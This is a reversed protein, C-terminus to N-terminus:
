LRAEPSVGAYIVNVTTSAGVWQATDALSWSYTTGTPQGSASALHGWDQSSVPGPDCYYHIDSKGTIPRGIVYITVPKSPGSGIVTGTDGDGDVAAYSVRCTATLSYTGAAAYIVSVSTTAESAPTLTAPSTVTWAYTAPGTVTWGPDSQPTGATSTATFTAAKGVSTTVSSVSTTVMINSVTGAPYPKPGPGPGAQFPEPGSNPTQAQTAGAGMAIALVCSLLILLPFSRNTRCFSPAATVCAFACTRPLALNAILGSFAPIADSQEM